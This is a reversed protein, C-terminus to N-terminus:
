KAARAAELAKAYSGEIRSIFEDKTKSDRVSTKKFKAIARPSSGKVIADIKGLESEQLEGVATVLPAESQAVRARINKVQALHAELREMCAEAQPSNGEELSYAIEEARTEALQTLLEAKGVNSFTFAVRIEETALKVPYLTDGPMTNASALSSLAFGGTFASAILVAIGITVGAWHLVPKLRRGVMLRRSRQKARFAEEIEARAKIKFEQSLEAGRAYNKVGLALEVLPKIEEAEKPYDHLCDELREGELV